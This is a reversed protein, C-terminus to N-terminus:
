SLQYIDEEVKCILDDINGTNKFYKGEFTKFNKVQAGVKSEAGGFMKMKYLPKTNVEVNRIKEM